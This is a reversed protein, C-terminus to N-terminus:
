LKRDLSALPLPLRPPSLSPANKGGSRVPRKQSKWESCLCLLLGAQGPAGLGQFVSLCAVVSTGATAPGREELFYRGSEEKLPDLSLKSLRKADEAQSFCGAAGSAAQDIVRHVKTAM